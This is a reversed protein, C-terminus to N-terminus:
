EFCFKMLMEAAHEMEIFLDQRVWTRSNRQEDELWFMYQQAEIDWYYDIIKRM